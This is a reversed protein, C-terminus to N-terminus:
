GVLKSDLYRVMHDVPLQEMETFTNRDKLAKLLHAIDAWRLWGLRQAVLAFKVDDRFALREQLRDPSEKYEMVKEFSYRNRDKEDYLAVLLYFERDKAYYTGVDILRIIQDWGKENETDEELNSLYKGVVFCCVDENELIVDIESMGELPHPDKARSVHDPDDSKMLMDRLFKLRRPSPGKRKWFSIEVDGLDMEQLRSLLKKDGVNKDRAVASALLHPMWVQPSYYKLTRFVNWTLADESNANKLQELKAGRFTEFIPNDRDLLLNKRFEEALPM